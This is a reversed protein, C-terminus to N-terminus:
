QIEVFTAKEGASPVYTSPDIVKIIGKTSTSIKYYAGVHRGGGPHVQVMQVDSHGEIRIIQARKSGKTSQEVYAQVGDENNFAEAIEDASKGWISKPEDLIDAPTFCPGNHVWAGVDGVFYTHFGAVVLNYVTYSGVAWTAGGVRLWGGRSSFVEDGPRLDEAHVWRGGRVRFPHNGTVGFTNSQGSDDVLTLHLVRKDHHVITDTITKWGGTGIKPDRSWVKQGIKLSEIPRLGQKTKVLTGAVFCGGENLLTQSEVDADLLGLSEALYFSGGIVALASLVNAGQRQGDNTMPFPASPVPLRDGSPKRLLPPDIIDYTLNLSAKALGVAMPAAKKAVKDANRYYHKNRTRGKKEEPSCKNLLGCMIMMQTGYAAERIGVRTARQATFSSASLGWPDWSNIPDFSVYAYPNFSDVYGLPDRSIFQALRPSYWRNRLYVLGTVPSRLASVFGFALGSPNSCVQSTGQEVCSQQESANLLTLRGHPDYNALQEIAKLKASWTAVVSNRHDVIPIYLDDYFGFDDHRHYQVLSDSHGRWLAEFLLDGSDNFDDTLQDGDYGFSVGSGDQQFEAALRGGEDYAFAELLAGQSDYTAVLRGYPGYVFHYDLGDVVNGAYDHRLAFTTNDVQVESLTHAAGRGQPAAWKTPTPCSGGMCDVSLLGGVKDERKYAWGVADNGQGVSDAVHFAKTNYDPWMTTYDVGYGSPADDEWAGDLAGRFDYTYGRWWEKHESAPMVQGSSDLAPHGFRWGLSIIQGMVDRVADIHLLPDSCNQGSWTGGCYEDAWSPDLPQGSSDLDLATYEWQRPRAFDDLVVQRRIPDGHNWSTSRDAEVNGTWDFHADVPYEGSLTGDMWSLRGAGDVHEEVITDDPAHPQVMARMWRYQSDLKYYSLTDHEPQTGVQIGEATTRGLTDYDFYTRVVVEDPDLRPDLDVLAPNYNTASTLRGLADFHREVLPADPDNPANEWIEGTPDGTDPDYEFRIIDQGRATSSARALRHVRGLDDYERYVLYPSGLGADTSQPEGFDTFTYQTARGSPDVVDIVHGRADFARLTTDTGVKTQQSTELAWGALNRQPFSREIEQPNIYSDVYGAANRKWTEERSLASDHGYTTRHVPLMDVDLDTVASTTLYNGDPTKRINSSTRVRGEPDFTNVTMNGAGDKTWVVNGAADFAMWRADEGLRHSGILRGDDARFYNTAYTYGSSASQSDEVIKETLEGHMNHFTRVVYNADSQTTISRNGWLDYDYLWLQDRQDTHSVLKGFPGYGYYQAIVDAGTDVASLTGVYQADRRGLNDYHYSRERSPTGSAGTQVEGTVLGREDRYYTTILGEPDSEQFVRGEGTYSRVWLRYSPSYPPEQPNPDSVHGISVTSSMPEVCGGPELAECHVLVNGADDYRTASQSVIETANTTEQATRWGDISYDYTTINGNPEEMETVRGDVDREFRTRLGDHWVYHPQGTTFYSFTITRQPDSRVSNIQDVVKAPLGLGDLNCSDDGVFLYPGRTSDCVSGIGSYVPAPVGSLYDQLYRESDIRALLGTNEQSITATDPPTSTGYDAAQATGDGPAAYYYFKTTLGSPREVYNLQGDPTYGLLTTRETSPDRPDSVSVSSPFELSEDFNYGYEAHFHPADFDQAGVRRVSVDVSGVQNTLPDYSMEKRIADIQRQDSGDANTRVTSTDGYHTSVLLNNRRRWYYKDAEIADGALPVDEDYAYTSYNSSVATGTVPQRTEILNGDANYLHETFIYERPVSAVHKAEVLTRGQYNLGYWTWNGDRDTAKAWECIRLANRAVRERGAQEVYREYDIEPSYNVPPQYGPDMWEHEECRPKFQPYSPPPNTSIPIMYHFAQRADELMTEYNDPPDALRSVCQVTRALEYCSDSDDTAAEQPLWSDCEWYDYQPHPQQVQRKRVQLLNANSTPDAVQVQALQECTMRSRQLEIKKGAIKGDAGYKDEPVDYYPLLPRYGPLVQELGAPRGMWCKIEDSYSTGPACDDGYNHDVNQWDASFVNRAYNAAQIRNAYDPDDSLPELGYRETIVGPLVDTRDGPTQTNGPDLPGPSVYEFKFEPYGSAWGDGTSLTQSGGYRQNLVHDFDDDDPNFRYASESEVVANRHVRVIDDDITSYYQELESDAKACPDGTRDVDSGAALACDSSADGPIIAECAVMRRFYTFYSELFDDAYKNIDGGLTETPDNRDDPEFPVNSTNWLYDYTYTQRGGLVSSSERQAQTLFTENLYTPYVTDRGYQFSVTAGGIGEVSQLLGFSPNSGTGDLPSNDYRFLLSRGLSDTVQKPRYRLKGTPSHALQGEDALAKTYEQALDLWEGYSLGEPLNYPPEHALPQTSGDVPPLALPNDVLSQRQERYNFREGGDGFVHALAACLRRDVEIGGNDTDGTFYVEDSKTCYRKYVTYLPTPEYTITFKLDDPGRDAILYGSDSFELEEGNVRELLWRHEGVECEDSQGRLDARCVPIIMSTSGAQPKYIQDDFDFAFLEVGGHGDHLLICTALPHWKVCYSAAWEPATGPKLFELWVEYNHTWNSGLVGRSESSSDYSRHFALPRRAGPFSLDTQNLRLSGDGLVVPDGKKEVDSDDDNSAGNKEGIPDSKHQTAHLADTKGDDPQSRHSEDARPPTDDAKPNSKPQKDDTTSQHQDESPISVNTLVTTGDPRNSQVAEFCGDIDCDAESGDNSKYIDFGNQEDPYEFTYNTDKPKKYKPHPKGNVLLRPDAISSQTFYSCTGDGTCDECINTTGTGICACFEGCCSIGSVNSPDQTPGGPISYLGQSGCGVFEMWSRSADFNSSDCAAPLSGDVGPTIVKCLEPVPSACAPPAVGDPTVPTDAARLASSPGNTDCGMAQALWKSGANPDAGGCAAPMTNGQPMAALCWAPVPEGRNGCTHSPGSGYDTSNLCTAMDPTMQQCMDCQDHISRFNLSFLQMSSSADKHWNLLDDPSGSEFDAAHDSVTSLDAFYQQMALSPPRCDYVGGGPCKPPTPNPDPEPPDGSIGWCQCCIRGNPISAAEGAIMSPADGIWSAVGRLKGAVILFNEFEVGEMDPSFRPDLPVIFLSAEFGVTGGVFKTTVGRTTDQALVERLKKRNEEDFVTVTFDANDADNLAVRFAEYPIVVPKQDLPVLKTGENQLSGEPLGPYPAGEGSYPYPYYM